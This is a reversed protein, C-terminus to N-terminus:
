KFPQVAVGRGVGGADHDALTREVLQHREIAIRFGIHKDGLEIHFPDLGRAEHFEVKQTKFSESNQLLGDLKQCLAADRDIERRDRKIIRTGKVHEPATFRDALFIEIPKSM